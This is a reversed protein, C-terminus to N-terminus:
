LFDRPTSTRAIVRKSLKDTKDYINNITDFVKKWVRRYGILTNDSYEEEYHWAGFNLILITHKKSIEKVLVNNLITENTPPFPDSAKNVRKFAITLTSAIGKIRCRYTQFRNNTILSWTYFNTSALGSKLMCCLSVAQQRATSDGILLISSRRKLKSVQNVFGLADFQNSNNERVYKCKLWEYMEQRHVSHICKDKLEDGVLSCSLYGSFNLYYVLSKFSDTTLLKWM